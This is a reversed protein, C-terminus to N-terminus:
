PIEEVKTTRMEPTAIVMMTRAQATNEGPSRACDSADIEPMTLSELPPPTAPAVTLMLFASVPESRLTKVSSVAM